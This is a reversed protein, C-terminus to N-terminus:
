LFKLDNFKHSRLKRLAKTLIQDIRAQTVFFDTAIKQKSMPHNTNFGFFMRVVIEERPTLKSLAKQINNYLDLQSYFYFPCHHNILQNYDDSDNLEDIYIKKNIMFRNYQYILFIDLNYNTIKNSRLWKVDSIHM